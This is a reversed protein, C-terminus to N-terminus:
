SYVIDETNLPHISSRINFLVLVLKGYKYAYKYACVQRVKNLLNLSSM